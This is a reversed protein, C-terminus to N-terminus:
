EEEESKSELPEVKAGCKECNLQEGELKAAFYYLQGCNPCKYYM